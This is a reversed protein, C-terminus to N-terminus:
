NTKYNVYEDEKKITHNCRDYVDNSIVDNGNSKTKIFEDYSNDASDNLYGKVQRMDVYAESGAIQKSSTKSQQFDDYQDDAHPRVHGYESQENTAENQHKTQKNKKDLRDYTRDDEFQEKNHLM